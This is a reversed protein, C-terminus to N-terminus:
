ERPVRLLYKLRGRHPLLPFRGWVEWSASALFDCRGCGTQEGTLTNLEKLAMLAEGGPSTSSPAAEELAQFGMNLEGLQVFKLVFGTARVSPHQLNGGEVGQQTHLPLTAM